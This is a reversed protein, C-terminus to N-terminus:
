TKKKEKFVLSIAYEHRDHIVCNVVRCRSYITCSFKELIRCIMVCMCNYTEVKFMNCINLVNNTIDM